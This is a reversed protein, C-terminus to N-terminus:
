RYRNAGLYGLRVPSGQWFTEELIIILYYSYYIFIEENFAAFIKLIVHSKTINYDM